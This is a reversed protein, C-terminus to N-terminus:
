GLTLELSCGRGPCYAAVPDLSLVILIQSEVPCHMWVRTHEGVVSHSVPCAVIDATILPAWENNRNKHMNFLNTVIVPDSPQHEVWRPLEQQTSRVVLSHLNPVQLWSTTHFRHLCVRVKHGANCEICCTGNYRRARNILYHVFSLMIAFRSWQMKYERVNGTQRNLFTCSDCFFVVFVSM